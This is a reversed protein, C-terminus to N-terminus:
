ETGNMGPPPEDFPEGRAEAEKARIYWNAWAGQTQAAGEERGQELGQELGQALGQELGQERGESRFKENHSDIKGNVYAAAARGLVMIGGGKVFSTVGVIGIAYVIIAPVADSTGEGVAIITKVINTHRGEAVEVWALMASWAMTMVCITSLCWPLLEASVSLPSYRNNDEPQNM